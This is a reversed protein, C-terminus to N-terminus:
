SRAITKKRIATVTKIDPNVPPMAACNKPNFRGLFTPQTIRLAFLRLRDRAFTNISAPSSTIQM